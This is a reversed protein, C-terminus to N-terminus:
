FEIEEREEVIERAALRHRLIHAALGRVTPAEFINRLSLRVSLARDIRALVRTALLSHGGLEFFNDDIGIPDVGIVEAWIEILRRETETSPPEYVNSTEPRSQVAQVHMVTAPPTAEEEIVSDGPPKRLSLEYQSILNFPVVIARKHQSNLVRAFTDAGEMPGITMRRYAESQQDAHLRAAMGRERWPGWNISIIKKWAPPCLKSDPFADLVANAATYDALGPAGLISSISSMLVVFDLARDGLLRVLVELGNIKPALVSQLDEPQKLFSIRGTGPVGAAHVVGDITGWRTFALDIARQMQTADAADAVITIVESGMQEIERLTQIITANWNEQAHEALWDSWTERPPIPTRATLVLQVSTNAAFWQALTLGIGGLGGTILYVGGRKVSSSGHSFSPLSLREFRRMWRRGNRWAVISELDPNAAEEVLARAIDQLPGPSEYPEFDVARMRLQPVETPLVLIPGHTLAAAPNYAPESLVSEAGFTAVIVPLPPGSPSIDLGEAIAVLERYSALDASVDSVSGSGLYIAGQIPHESQLSKAISAIDESQGPRARFHTTSVMQFSASSEVVVPHAGAARLRDVLVEALPSPQALLLWPGELRPALILHSSERTWTPSFLWDGIDEEREPVIPKTARTTPSPPNVGYWKREFPYTPLPIRQPSAGAHLNTWDLEVGALWMRGAAELMAADDANENRRHPLSSIVYKAKEKGVILRVMSTLTTGPGVELFVTTPDVAITRVGAEFQVARRLHTAYYDPSTAQEDTIWKGTVNSIYSICPPLLTISKVTAVFPSLAPEM